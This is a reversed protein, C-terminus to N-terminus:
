ILFLIYKNNKMNKNLFYYIINYIFYYAKRIWIIVISENRLSFIDDVTQALISNCSNFGSGDHFLHVVLRIPHLVIYFVKSDFPVFIASMLLIYKMKFIIGFEIHKGYINNIM